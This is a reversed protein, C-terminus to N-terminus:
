VRLLTLLSQPVANSHQSVHAASQVLIQSRTLNSIEEAFEMDLIASQAATANEFTVNLAAITSALRDTQQQNAAIEDHSLGTESASRSVPLSTSLREHAGVLGIQQKNFVRASILSAVNSNSQSM